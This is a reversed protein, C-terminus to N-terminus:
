RGSQVARSESAEDLEFAEVISSYLAEPMVAPRKQSNIWVVSQSGSCLKSNDRKLFFEFKFEIRTRTLSVVTLEITVTDFIRAEAVFDIDAHETILGFGRELDHVFEPYYQALRRERIEGQWRFYEAFYVNGVVNTDGFTVLHDHRFARRTTKPLGPSSSPDRESM